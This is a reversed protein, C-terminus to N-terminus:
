QPQGIGTMWQSAQPGDAHRFVLQRHHQGVVDGEVLRAVRQQAVRGPAVGGAGTAAALGLALGVRQVGEDVAAPVEGAEGIGVAASGIPL